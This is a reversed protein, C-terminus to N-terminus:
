KQGQPMDNGCACGAEASAHSSLPSAGHAHTKSRRNSGSSNLSVFFMGTSKKGCTKVYNRFIFTQNGFFKRLLEVSSISTQRNEQLLCQSFEYKHNSEQVAAANSKHKSVFSGSLPCQSKRCSKQWQCMM